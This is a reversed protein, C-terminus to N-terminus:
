FNDNQAFRLIQKECPALLPNKPRLRGRAYDLPGLIVSDANNYLGM